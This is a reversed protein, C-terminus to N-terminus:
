VIPEMRSPTAYLFGAGYYGAIRDEEQLTVQGAVRTGPVDAFQSALIADVRVRRKDILTCTIPLLM